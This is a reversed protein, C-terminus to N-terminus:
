RCRRSWRAPTRIATPPRSASRASSSSTTAPPCTSTGAAPAAAPGRQGRSVHGRHHQRRRLPPPGHGGRLRAGRVLLPRARNTVEGGAVQEPAMYSPSGFFHGSQTAVSSELRAVGFDMLKPRGNELVMINAPKIDRHVISSRHAYDLADALPTLLALAEDLPLKGRAAIVAQLTIGELYEMVFYTEGVDYISVINPHSLRGAAQAERRFRRLYDEATERTLYEQKVTKVAVLRKMLPDSCRYVRGMAGDGIEREVVYRGFKRPAKSM